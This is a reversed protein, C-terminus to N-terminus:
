IWAIIEVISAASAAFKFAPHREELLLRTVLCTLSFLEGLLVDEMAPERMVWCQSWDFSEGAADSKAYM